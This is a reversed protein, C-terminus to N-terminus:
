YSFDADLDIGSRRKRTLGGQRRGEIRKMREVAAADSQRQYYQETWVTRMFEVQEPSIHTVAEVRPERGNRIVMVHTCLATMHKLYEDLTPWEQAAATAAGLRNGM